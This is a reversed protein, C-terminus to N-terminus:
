SQKVNKYGPRKLGFAERKWRLVIGRRGSSSAQLKGIPQKNNQFHLLLAMSNSDRAPQNSQHKLNALQLLQL